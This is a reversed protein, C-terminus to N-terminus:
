GPRGRPGSSGAPSRRPWAPRTPSPARPRRNPRRSCSGTRCGRPPRRIHTRRPRVTDSPAPSSTLVSFFALAPSGPVTYEPDASAKRSTRWFFSMRGPLVRAARRLCTASDLARIEARCTAFSSISLPRSVAAIAWCRSPPSVFGGAFAAGVAVAALGAAAGCAPLFGDPGVAAGAAGPLPWGGFGAECFGSAAADGGASLPSAESKSSSNGERDSPSGGGSSPWGGLGAWCFGGAAAAGGASLPSADSRSSSNDEKDPPSGDSPTPGSSARM